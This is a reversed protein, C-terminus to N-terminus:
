QKDKYQISINSTLAQNVIHRLIICPKCKQRYFYIKNSLCSCLNSLDQQKSASSAYFDLGDQTKVIVEKCQM